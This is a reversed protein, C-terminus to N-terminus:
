RPSRDYRIDPLADDAGDRRLDAADTTAVDDNASREAGHPPPGDGIGVAHPQGLRGVLGTVQADRRRRRPTSHPRRARRPPRAARSPCPRRRWRRAAAAHHRDNGGGGSRHDRTRREQQAKDSRTTMFESATAKTDPGCITASNVPTSIPRRSSPPTAVWALDLPRHATSDSSTSPATASSSSYRGAVGVLNWRNRGNRVRHQSGRGLQAVTM